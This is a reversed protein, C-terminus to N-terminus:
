IEYGDDSSVIIPANLPTGIIDDSSRDELIITYKLNFAEAARDFLLISLTNDGKIVQKLNFLANKSEFRDKYLDIDVNKENLATKIARKLIDDDLSVTPKFLKSSEPINILVVKKKNIDEIIKNPDIHSIKDEYRYKEKEDDSIPDIKVYRENDINFYIGPEIHESELKDTSAEGMFKYYYDDHLYAVGIEYEEISDDYISIRLIEDGAVLLSEGGYVKSM